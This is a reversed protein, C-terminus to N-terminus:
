PLIQSLANQPQVNKKFFLVGGSKLLVAVYVM